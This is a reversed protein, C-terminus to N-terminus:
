RRTIVTGAKGELARDLLGFSTIIVKRGAKGELFRISAEIKPGMSGRPFQGAKLHKRAEKLAMRSVKKENARGFNLCVNDVDTLIVLLGADVAEALLQGTLDKDIVAEVGKLGRFGFRDKPKGTGRIVPIGGGGCAVVIADQSIERIAAAEVIERPKPSAVVRRFGKPTKAVHWEIPMESHHRYFPGIPKTPKRFAPDRPNVIVQTVVTVVPAKVRLRHLSNHMAEQIMSGILAQSQAVCAHLPMRPVKSGEQQLLINGVQPGNGHTLVVRYGKKAMQAIHGAAESINILQERYTGIQGPRILANGGLAIVATKPM